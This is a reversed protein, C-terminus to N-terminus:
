ALSFSQPGCSSSYSWQQQIPFLLDLQLAPIPFVISKRGPFSKTECITKRSWLADEHKLASEAYKGKKKRGTGEKFSLTDQLQFFLAGDLISLFEGVGRLLSLSTRPSLLVM